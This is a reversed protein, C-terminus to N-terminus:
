KGEGGFWRGVWEAVEDAVEQTAELPLFHGVGEGGVRRAKTRGEPGIAEWVERVEGEKGEGGGKELNACWLALLPCEVRGHPVSASSPADAADHALDISAGARYDELAGSLVFPDDYQEVWSKMADADFTVEEGEEGQVEGSASPSASPRKSGSGTWSTINHRIFWRRTPLHSLLSQPLPPPLALLIWHYSKLTTAHARGFQMATPVIDQVCLGVIRDPSDKALRYAIRAGRDHGILVVKPMKKDEEEGAKVPWVADVLALVDKGVERKSLALHSGDPSATKRSRGYGPLDPVVVRFRELIRRGGDTGAWHQLLPAWLLHNQPYGHLLVLVPKDHSSPPDSVLGFLSTPPLSSETSHPLSVTHPRFSPPFTSM